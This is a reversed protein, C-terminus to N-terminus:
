APALKEFRRQWILNAGAIKYLPHFPPISIPKLNFTVPPGSSIVNSSLAITLASNRESEGFSELALAVSTASLM